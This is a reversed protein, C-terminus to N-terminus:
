IKFQWVFFLLSQFLRHHSVFLDYKVELNLLNLLNRKLPLKGSIGYQNLEKHRVKGSNVVRRAREPSLEPDPTSMM